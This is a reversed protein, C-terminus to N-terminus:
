KAGLNHAYRNRAAHGPNYGADQSMKGQSDGLRLVALEEDDFREGLPEESKVGDADTTSVFYSIGEVVDGRESRVTAKREVIEAAGIFIKLVGSKFGHLQAARELVSPEAPKEAEQKPPAAGQAAQQSQNGVLNHAYRNLM